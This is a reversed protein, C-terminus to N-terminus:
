RESDGSAAIALRHLKGPTIGFEAKFTRHFTELSGFGCTDCIEQISQDTTKLLDAAHQLRQDRIYKAPTTKLHERFLVSLRTPSIQIAESVDCVSLTPLNLHQLIYDEAMNLTKKLYRQTDTHCNEAISELLSHFWAVPNAWDTDDMIVPMEEQRLQNINLRVGRVHLEECVSEFLDGFRGKLEDVSQLPTDAIANLTEELLQHYNQQEIVANAIEHARDRIPVQFPSPDGPAPRYMQFLPNSFRKHTYQHLTSVSLMKHYTSSISSIQNMVDSMYVIVDMDYKDKCSASIEACHHKLQQLL